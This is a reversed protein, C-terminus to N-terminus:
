ACLSVVDRVDLSFNFIVDESGRELQYVAWNKIAFVAEGNHMVGFMGGNLYRLSGRAALASEILDDIYAARQANNSVAFDVCEKLSPSQWLMRWELVHVEEEVRETKDGVFLVFGNETAEIRARSERDVGSKLRTEMYDGVRVRDTVYM